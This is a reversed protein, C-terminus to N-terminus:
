DDAGNRSGMSKYVVADITNPVFRLSGDAMTMNVGHPHYSRTLVFIETGTWICPARTAPKTSCWNFQDPVMTNPPLRTSFAVGSHAPNFYRGRIDHDVSDITLILESTFATYATGDTIEAIRTKSGAYFVGDLSASKQYTTDNFYDSSANVIYNGSFGQNPLGNYGGWFSHVKRSVPDSPCTMTPMVFDLGPFALASAGTEFHADLSAQLPEQELYGFLHHMWCRRNFKSGFPPVSINPTTSDIYNYTGMPFRQNADHYLHLAIALQKQNNACQTRRAAERASQVAPLLLAVLIGIVAIVVLLEILTFGRLPHVYHSLPLHTRKSEFTLQDLYHPWGNKMPSQM